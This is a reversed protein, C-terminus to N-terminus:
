TGKQGLIPTQVPFVHLRMIFYMKYIYIYKMHWQVGTLLAKYFAKVVKKLTKWQLFYIKNLTFFLHM